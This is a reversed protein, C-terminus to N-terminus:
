RSTACKMHFIILPHIASLINPLITDMEDLVSCIKRLDSGGM